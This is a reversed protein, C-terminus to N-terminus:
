SEVIEILKELCALESAEPTNYINSYLDMLLNM